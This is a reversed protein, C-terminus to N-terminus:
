IIIRGYSIKGLIKLKREMHTKYLRPSAVEM